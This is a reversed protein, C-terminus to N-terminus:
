ARLFYNMKPFAQERKRQRLTKANKQEPTLAMRMAKTLKPKLFKPTNKVNAPESYFKRLSAKEKQNLVTLIRAINKRVVRQKCAKAATGSTKAATRLQLLEKKMDELLTMLDEKSKERLIRANETAMSLQLSFSFFLYQNNYKGNLSFLRTWFFCLM